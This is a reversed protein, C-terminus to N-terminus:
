LHYKIRLVVIIPNQVHVVDIHIAHYMEWRHDCDNTLLLQSNSHDLLKGYLHLIHVFTCSVLQHVLM